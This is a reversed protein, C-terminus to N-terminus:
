FMTKANEQLGAPLTQTVQPGRDHGRAFYIVGTNFDTVSSGTLKYSCINGRIILHAWIHNVLACHPAKPAFLLRQLTTENGILFGEGFSSSRDM